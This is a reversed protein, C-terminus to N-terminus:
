EQRAAATRKRRRRQPQADLAAGAPGAQAAVERRVHQAVAEGGMQQFVAGVQADDLFQQAVGADARGFDIGVDGHRAQPFDVAGEVGPM